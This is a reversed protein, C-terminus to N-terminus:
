LRGEPPFENTTQNSTMEADYSASRDSTPRNFRGETEDATELPNSSHLSKKDGRLAGDEEKNKEITSKTAMDQNSAGRIMRVAIFGVLLAGGLFIEPKRRAFSEIENVLSGVDRDRVLTAFKEIQDAAREALRAATSQDRDELTKSTEHLAEAVEGLGEAARIQQGHVIERAQNRAIETIRDVGGGVGNGGINNEHAPFARAAEGMAM